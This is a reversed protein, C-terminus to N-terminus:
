LQPGSQFSQGTEKAPVGLVSTGPRVTGVVVSGMGVSAGAGIRVNDRITAGAGISVDCDIFAHGCVTVSAAMWARDGIDAGHGIHVMNGLIVHDSIRTRGLMAKLVVAHSGLECNRGMQVTGFHIRAWSLVRGDVCKHVAPGHAGVISGSAIITNDGIITGRRIVAYPEILVGGAIVTGEEILATRHAEYTGSCVDMREAQLATTKEWDPKAKSLFRMFAARPDQVILRTSASISAAAERSCLVAREVEEEIQSPSSQYSLSHRVRSGYTGVGAIPVDPGSLEADLAVALDSAWVSDELLTIEAANRPDNDHM